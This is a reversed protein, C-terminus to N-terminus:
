KRGTTKKVAKKAVVAKKVPTVAKSPVKKAGFSFLNGLPNSGGTGQALMMFKLLDGNNGASGQSLAMMLMPNFGESGNNGGMVQSLLLLEAMSGGGFSNKGDTLLMLTMPNLGNLGLGQGGALDFISVIKTYFYMGFLNTRQLKSSRNGTLPNIFKVNGNENTEVLLLENDLLVIDGSEVTQTPVKYFDIDMKLSGVDVRQKVGEEDVSVTVYEGNKNKFAPEGNMSVAIRDGELKGFNLNLGPVNGFISSMFSENKTTQNNSSSAGSGISGSYDKIQPKYESLKLAILEPKIASLVKDLHRETLMETRKAYDRVIPNLAIADLLYTQPVSDLSVVNVSGPSFEYAKMSLMHFIIYQRNYMERSRPALYYASGQAYRVIVYEEFKYDLSFKLNIEM